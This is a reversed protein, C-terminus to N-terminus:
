DIKYDPNQDLRLFTYAMRWEPRGQLWDPSSICTNTNPDSFAFVAGSPSKIKFLLCGDWFAQDNEITELFREVASKYTEKIRYEEINLGIMHAFQFIYAASNTPKYIMTISAIEAAQVTRLEASPCIRAYGNTVSFFFDEQWPHPFVPNECWEICKAHIAPIDYKAKM